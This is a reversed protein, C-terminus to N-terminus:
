TPHSESLELNVFTPVVSKALYTVSPSFLYTAAVVYAYLVLLLFNEVAKM